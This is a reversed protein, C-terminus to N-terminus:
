AAQPTSDLAVPPNVTGPMQANIDIAPVAPQINIIPETAPNPMMTASPPTPVPAEVVAQTPLVPTETPMAVPLYDVGGEIKEKMVCLLYIKDM